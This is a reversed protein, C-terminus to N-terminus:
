QLEVVVVEEGGSQSPTNGNNAVNARRGLFKEYSTTNRTLHENRLAMIVM